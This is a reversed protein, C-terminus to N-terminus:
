RSPSGQDSPSFAVLEDHLMAAHAGAKRIYATVTDKGVGTLAATQRTGCGRRLHDLVAVVDDEPLRSQELISGKRESCHAKCERCYLMRIRHGKGSWGLFMLNGKGREGFVRCSSNQCCYDKIPRQMLCEGVPFIVARAVARM